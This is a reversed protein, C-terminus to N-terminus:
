HWLWTAASSSGDSMLSGASEIGLLLWFVAVAVRDRQGGAAVWVLWLVIGASWM